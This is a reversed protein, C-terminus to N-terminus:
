VEFASITGDEGGLLLRGETYATATVDVPVSGIESTEGDGSVLLVRGDFCVVAARDGMRVVHSAGPSVDARWLPEGATGFGIATAGETAAFLVQGDRGKLLALGAPVEGLCHGWRRAKEDYSHVRLNEQRSVACAVELKGDGDLDAILVDKVQSTWGANPLMHKQQGDVGIVRCGSASSLIDNGGVIEVMGDGDLDCTEYTLFTGHDTRYEWRENGGANVLHMRMNGPTVIVEGDGDGDLDEVWVRKISSDYWSWYAWYQNGYEPRYRWIEERSSADLVRVYEDECGLVIRTPEGGRLTGSHVTNVPSGTEYTWDPAGDAELSVLAGGECAALVRDGEPLSAVHLDNIRGPCEASWRAGIAGAATDPGAEEEGTADPKVVLHDPNPIDVPGLSLEQVAEASVACEGSDGDSRRWLVSLAEIAAVSVSGSRSVELCCPRSLQITTGRIRLATCGAAFVGDSWVALLSCTAYLG